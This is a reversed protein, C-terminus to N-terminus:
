GKAKTTDIFKIEKLDFGCWPCFRIPKIHAAADPREDYDWNYPEFAADCGTIYGEDTLTPVCCGAIEEYADAQTFVKMTECCRMKM